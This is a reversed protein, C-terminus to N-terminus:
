PLATTDILTLVCVVPMVMLLEKEEFDILDVRRWELQHFMRSENLNM